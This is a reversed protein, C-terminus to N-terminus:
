TILTTRVTHGETITCTQGFNLSLEVSNNLLTVSLHHLHYKIVTHCWASKLQNMSQYFSKIRKENHSQASELGKGAGAQLSASLLEKFQVM